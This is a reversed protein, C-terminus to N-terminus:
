HESHEEYINGRLITSTNTNYALVLNLGIKEASYKMERKIKTDIIYCLFVYDVLFLISLAIKNIKGSLSNECIVQLIGKNAPLM